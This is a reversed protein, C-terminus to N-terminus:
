VAHSEENTENDDKKSKLAKKLMKIADKLGQGTTASVTYTIGKIVITEKKM